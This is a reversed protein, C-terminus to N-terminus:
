VGGKICQVFSFHDKGIEPDQYVQEWEDCHKLKEILESNNAPKRKHDEVAKIEHKVDIIDGNGWYFPDPDEKFLYKCVTVDEKFLYKCLTVWAKHFSM